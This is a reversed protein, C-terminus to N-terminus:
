LLYTDTLLREIAAVLFYCPRTWFGHLNDSHTVILINLATPKLVATKRFIFGGYINKSYESWLCKRMNNIPKLLLYLFPPCYSLKKYSMNKFLINQRSGGTISMSLNLAWHFQRLVHICSRRQLVPLHLIQLNNSNKLLNGIRLFINYIQFM